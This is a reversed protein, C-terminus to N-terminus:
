GSLNKTKNNTPNLVNSFTNVSNKKPNQKEYKALDTETEM